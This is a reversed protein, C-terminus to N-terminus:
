LKIIDVLGRISLEYSMLRFGSVRGWCVVSVLFKHHFEERTGLLNLNSGHLILIKM